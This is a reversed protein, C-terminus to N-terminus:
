TVNWLGETFCLMHQQIQSSWCADCLFLLLLSNASVGTGVLCQIFLGQAVIFGAFQM